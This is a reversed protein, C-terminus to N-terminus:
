SNFLISIFLLVMILLIFKFIKNYKDITYELPDININFFTKFIQKFETKIFFVIAFLSFFVGSFKTFLLDLKYYFINVKEYAKIISYNNKLKDIFIKYSDEIKNYDLTKNLKKIADRIPNVYNITSPFMDEIDKGSLIDFICYNSSEFLKPLNVDKKERSEFEFLKFTIHSKLYFENPNANYLELAERKKNTDKLNIHAIYRGFFDTHDKFKSTSTPKNIESIYYELYTQNINEKLLNTIKEISDIVDNEKKNLGLFNYYILNLGYVATSIAIFLMIAYICEYEYNYNKYIDKNYYKYFGLIKIETNLSNNIDSAIKNTWFLIFLILYIIFLILNTTDFLINYDFIKYKDLSCYTKLSEGEKKSIAYRNTYNILQELNIVFLVFFLAIIIVLIFKPFFNLLVIILILILIAVIIKAIYDIM